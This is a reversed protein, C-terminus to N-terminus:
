PPPSSAPSWSRSLPRASRGCRCATPPSGPIPPTGGWLNIGEIFQITFLAAFAVALGYAVAPRSVALVRDIPKALALSVAMIALGIGLTLWHGEGIKTLYGILVVFGSLSLALLHYGARWRTSLTLALFLVAWLGLYPWHLM